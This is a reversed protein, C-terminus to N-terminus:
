PLDGTVKPSPPTVDRFEESRARESKTEAALAPTLLLQSDKTITFEYNFTRINTLKL